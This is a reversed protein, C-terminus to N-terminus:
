VKEELLTKLYEIEKDINLKKIAKINFVEKLVGYVVIEDGLDKDELKNAKKGYAKCELIGTGDDLVISLIKLKEAEVIGCNPCEGEILKKRCIPCIDITELKKRVITGRVECPENELVDIIFKRNFFTNLKEIRGYKRLSLEPIDKRKVYANYVKVVDGEEIDINAMEEWLTLRISNGDDLIINKVKRKTGDVEVINERVDTVVAILNVVELGEDELIDKIKVFKVGEKREKLIETEYTANLVVRENGERDFYKKVKCNTIIVIDGEEVDDLLSCGMGWFRVSVRGTEDEVLIEQVKTPRDLEITRKMGKAIIKGRISVLENENKFKLDEIDVTEIPMEKRDLIKIDTASCELQDSYYYNKQIWGKVRVKDGIRVDTDALDHWLVVRIRDIGDSLYFSKFRGNEFEKIPLASVVEGELIAFDGEKLDSIFNIDVEEKGVKNIKTDDTSVLVLKNRRKTARVKKIELIDGEEVDLDIDYLVVTIAGTDDALVIRVTSNYKKVDLVKGKVDVIMEERIDEIKFERGEEEIDIGEEKALMLIAAEKTIIGGFEDILKKIRNEIEGESVGLKKALVKKLVEYNDM